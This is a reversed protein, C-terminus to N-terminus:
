SRPVTYVRIASAAGRAQCGAIQAVTLFAILLAAAFVTVVLWAPLRSGAAGAFTDRRVANPALPTRSAGRVAAVEREVEALLAHLKEPAGLAYRGAFGLALCCYYIELAEVHAERERRLRELRNFFEEGAVNTGFLELQLPREYWAARAAGPTRLVSEDLFAVLAYIAAETDAASFGADRAEQELRVKLELARARLGSPDPLERLRRIAIVLSLWESCLDVLRAHVPAPASRHRVPDLILTELIGRKEPRTSRGAARGTRSARRDPPATNRKGPM